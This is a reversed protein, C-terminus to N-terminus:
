EALVMLQREPDVALLSLLCEEDKLFDAYLLPTWRAGGVCDHAVGQQSAM